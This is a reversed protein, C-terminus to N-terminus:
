QVRQGGPFAPLLSTAHPRTVWSGAEKKLRSSTQCQDDSVLLDGDRGAPQFGSAEFLAISATNKPKVRAHSEPFRDMLAEILAKGVGCGWFDPDTCVRIDGDISGVYSAPRGDHLAVLFRDAHHAMYRAQQDRAIEVQELFGDQVRADNRLQRIFEFHEPSNEVIRIM